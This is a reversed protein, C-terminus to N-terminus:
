AEEPAALKGNWAAESARAWKMYVGMRFLPETPAAKEAMMLLYLLQEFSPIAASKPSRWRRLLELGPSSPGMAARVQEITPQREGSRAIHRYLLSIKDKM